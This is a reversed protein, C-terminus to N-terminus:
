YNQKKFKYVFNNPATRRPRLSALKDKKYNISNYFFILSCRAQTKKIIIM